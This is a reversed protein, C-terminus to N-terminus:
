LFWEILTRSFFKCLLLELCIWYFYPWPRNLFGYKSWSNENQFFCLFDIFKPNFCLPLKLYGINSTKYYRKKCSINFVRKKEWRIKHVWTGKGVLKDILDECVIRICVLFLLLLFFLVFVSFITALFAGFGLKLDLILRLLKEVGLVLFQAM